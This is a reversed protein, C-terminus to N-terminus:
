ISKASTPVEISSKLRSIFSLNFCSGLNTCCYRSRKFSIKPLSITRGCAYDMSSTRNSLRRKDELLTISLSKQTDQYSTYFNIKFVKFHNHNCLRSFYFTSYSQDIAVKQQSLNFKFAGLVM